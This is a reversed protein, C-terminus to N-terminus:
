RFHEFGEPLEREGQPTRLVIRPERTVVGIRRMPVGRSNQQVARLRGRASPRVTFLLEYDDGGSFAAAIPDSGHREHWRRAEDSIPLASADITM